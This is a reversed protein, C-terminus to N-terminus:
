WNEKFSLLSLCSSNRKTKAHKEVTLSQLQCCVGIDIPARKVELKEEAMLEHNIDSVSM